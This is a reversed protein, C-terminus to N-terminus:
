IHLFQYEPFENLTHVYNVTCSFCLSFVTVLSSAVVTMSSHSLSGIGQGAKELVAREAGRPLPVM